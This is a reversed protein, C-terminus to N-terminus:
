EFVISGSFCQSAVPLVMVYCEDTNYEFDIVIQLGQVEDLDHDVGVGKNRKLM